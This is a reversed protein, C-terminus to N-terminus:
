SNIRKALKISPKEIIIHIMIATFIVILLVLISSFYFNLNKNIIFYELLTYGLLAHVAYLPYSIDALFNLLINNKINKHFYFCCLFISLSIGYNVIHVIQLYEDFSFRLFISFLLYLSIIIICGNKIDIKKNYLLSFITGILMYLLFPIELIIAYKWAYELKLM